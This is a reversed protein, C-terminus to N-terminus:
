WRGADPQANKPAYLRVTEQKGKLVVGTREVLEPHPGTLLEGTRQAVLVTDGTQRTAAEVRAAVNVADGIVSFEYRRDGGINGAVVDGSNLGTGVSLPGGDSDLAREIQLAAALAQDAHDRQRRPAGFVAMLGDGVFKDIRGGHAHIVPVIREFLRNIAAVVQAAPTREAFGTFNRVDIFMITVEVQEGELDTGEDLIHEAVEPDVYTGFADRIREREALGAVMANFGLQLQGIQTADYVPVRVDFDGREVRGLARRVSDVPEVTTRAALVVALLGVALGVGGLVVMAVGLDSRDTSSDGSLALVGVAVVGLLPVATGLVWALVARTAVGPVTVRSPMGGALARAAGSRLIRETLLYACAATVLGTLVIIIVVRLALRSSYTLNLVGFVAAAGFWLSVQVAFLRLPAHLLIRTERDTAPREERLWDRLPLMGRIGILVGLPVAIAVYAAAAIANVMRVHSPDAVKPMPVAFEALVLVACAGIVNTLVIAAPLVAYSFRLLTRGSLGGEGPRALEVFGRRLASSLSDARSM